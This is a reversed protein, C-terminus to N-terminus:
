TSRCEGESTPLERSPSGALVTRMLCSRRCSWQIRQHASDAYRGATMLKLIDIAVLAGILLLGHEWTFVSWTFAMTFLPVVAFWTLSREGAREVRAKMKKILLLMTSLFLVGGFVGIRLFLDLYGSDVTLLRRRFRDENEKDFGFALATEDSPVGVGWRFHEALVAVRLVNLSERSVVSADDRIREPLSTSAILATLLITGAAVAFTLGSSIRKGKLISAALLLLAAAAMSRHGELVVGCGLLVVLFARARVGVDAVRFLVLVLALLVLTPQPFHVGQWMDDEAVRGMGPLMGAGFAHAILVCSVVAAYSLTRRAFLALFPRGYNSAILSFPLLVFPTDLWHYGFEGFVWVSRVMAGVWVAGFLTGFLLVWRQARAAQPNLARGFSLFAPIALIAGLCVAAVPLIAPLVGNAPALAYFGTLCAFWAEFSFRLLMPAERNDIADSSRRALSSAGSEGM